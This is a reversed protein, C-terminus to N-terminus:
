AHRAEKHAMFGPRGVKVDVITERDKSVARILTGERERGENLLALAIERGLFPSHCASTIHGIGPGTPATGDGEFLTMGVSLPPTKQGEPGSSVAKLGVLQARIKHDPNTERSVPFGLDDATTEGNLEQPGPRGTEIRLIERARTGVLTLGHAKGKETLLTWLNDVFGARTFIEYGPGTALSIRALRVPFEDQSFDRFGMPPLIEAMVSMPLTDALLAESGPGMVALGGWEDTVDTMRLRRTTDEAESLRLLRDQVANFSTAAMTLLFHHRAIRWCIVPAIVGGSEKCLLVQRMLGENLAAVDGGFVQELFGAADPGQIDIKGLHSLDAMGVTNHVALAERSGAALADEGTAPYAAALRWKCLNQPVAGARSQAECLPGRRTKPLAEARMKGAPGVATSEEGIEPLSRPFVGASQILSDCELFINRQLPANGSKQVAIRRLRRFGQARVIRHGPYLPIGAHRAFQHCHTPVEDRADIIAALQIGRALCSAALRYGGTHGVYLIMKHGPLVAQRNILTLAYELNFVGSLGNNEFPFIQDEKGMSFVIERAQVHRLRLFPLHPDAAALHNQPQEEVHLLTEGERAVATTRNLMRVNPMEALKALMNDRWEDPAQGDIWEETNLLSGGFEFDREILLVDAGTEAQELVAKLGAPGSGVVLYDVYDYVHETEVLGDSSFPPEKDTTSIRALRLLRHLWPYQSKAAIGEYLEQAATIATAHEQGDRTVLVSDPVDVGQALLASALTDGGFGEFALGNFRFHLPRARDILGGAIRYDPTSRGKGSAFKFPWIRAM